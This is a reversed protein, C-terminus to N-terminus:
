IVFFFWWWRKETGEKVHWPLISGESEVEGAAERAQSSSLLSRIEEQKLLNSRRFTALSAM